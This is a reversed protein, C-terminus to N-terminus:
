DQGVKEHENKHSVIHPQRYRNRRPCTHAVQEKSPILSSSCISSLVTMLRIQATIAILYDNSQTLNICSKKGQWCAM